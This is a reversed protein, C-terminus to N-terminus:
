GIKAAVKAALLMNKEAYLETVSLKSHGLTAGAGEIGFERRALTAFSHRLRNPGWRPILREAKPVKDAVTVRLRGEAAAAKDEAAQRAQQDALECGRAIAKALSWRTYRNGWARKRNPKRQRAQQSPQVKSMRNARLEDRREDMAKRPNFLYETMSMTLFPRLVDQRRPGLAVIREKDLHETKHHDPRYLWTPGSMDIDAARIICGETPRMGSYRLLEVLGWITRSVHAQIADVFQEPVPKVRATERAKSRGKPLPKVTALARHVAVPLLEEEVAFQFARLIRTIRRNATTRCNDNDIMKLRVVKLKKPTFQDAPIDGYLAKM